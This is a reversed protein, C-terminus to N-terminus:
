PTINVDYDSGQQGHLTILCFNTAFNWSNRGKSPYKM